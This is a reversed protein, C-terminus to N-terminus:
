TSAPRCPSSTAATACWGCTARPRQMRVSISRSCNRSAPKGLWSKGRTQQRATDGIWWAALRSTALDVLVNHRNELGIVLPKVFTRGGVEIVETLVAAPESVGPVNARRVVRLANPAPPTFDERNLVQWVAAIQRDSDARSCAAFRSNCRPCKWRRCSAPRIACGVSSGPMASARASAGVPGGGRRQARREVPKWKGIAHCSTCGFGDATVLRAGAADIASDGAPPDDPPADPREPIRDSDIFHRALERTEAESLPFKPMRVRLWTRRGPQSAAISAALVDDRLKDGVGALSPPTLAPLVDRLKSDAEAVAPLQPTLGRGAGRAHCVLCNGQALLDSGTPKAVGEKPRVGAVFSAVAQRQSADLRYGPRNRAPDPQGLCSNQERHLAAADLKLRKNDRKAVTQPLTHCEACRFEQLLEGGTRAQAVAHGKTPKAMPKLTQLYRSLSEIEEATLAFVPMRHDRNLVAPNALWRTFYDAPRKDAVASLDGGGFLGDTGLDGVRHCALCGVSRFLTEGGSVSPPPPQDAPKLKDKKKDKTDVGAGPM